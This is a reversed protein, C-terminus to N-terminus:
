HRGQLAIETIPASTGDGLVWNLRGVVSGRADLTVEIESTRDLLLPRGNFTAADITAMKGDLLMAYIPAFTAKDALMAETFQLLRIWTGSNFYLRGGGLDIARALHTHGTIVIDVPPGVSKM